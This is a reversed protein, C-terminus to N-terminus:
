IASWSGPDMMNLQDAGELVAPPAVVALLFHVEQVAGIESM